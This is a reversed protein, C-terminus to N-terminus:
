QKFDHRWQSKIVKNLYKCECNLSANEKEAKMLSMELEQILKLQRTSELYLSAILKESANSQTYTRSWSVSRKRVHPFTNTRVKIHFEKRPSSKTRIRKLHQLLIVVIRSTDRTDLLETTLLHKVELLSDDNFDKLLYEIFKTCTAIKCCKSDPRDLPETLSEAAITGDELGLALSFSLIKKFSSTFNQPHLVHIPSLISLYRLEM